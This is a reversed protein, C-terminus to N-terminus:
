NSETLGKLTQLLKFVLDEDREFPLHGGLFPQLRFTGETVDKWGNVEEASIGSDETGLFAEVSCRLRPNPDFNYTEYVEFDARITPLLLEMMESNRLLADPVGGMAAVVALFEDHPLLHIDNEHSALNPAGCGSVLLASPPLGYDEQLRRASEFAILGGGCHGYLAYPRTIYPRLANSLDDALESLRTYAAEQIRTERGPLVIPCIEAVHAVRTRLRGFM